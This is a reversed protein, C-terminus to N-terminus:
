CYKMKNVSKVWREWIYVFYKMEMVMKLELSRRYGALSALVSERPSGRFSSPKIGTWTWVSLEQPRKSSPFAHSRGHICLCEGLIQDPDVAIQSNQTPYKRLSPSSTQLHPIGLGADKDSIWARCPSRFRSSLTWRCKWVSLVCYRLLILICSPRPMNAWSHIKSFEQLPWVNGLLVSMYVQFCGLPMLNPIYCKSFFCIWGSHPSISLFRWPQHCPFWALWTLDCKLCKGKKEGFM